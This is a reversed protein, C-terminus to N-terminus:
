PWAPPFICNWLKLSFRQCTDPHLVHSPCQHCHGQSSSISSPVHTLGLVLVLGLGGAHLALARGSLQLGLRSNKLNGFTM